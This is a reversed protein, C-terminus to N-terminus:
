QGLLTWQRFGLLNDSLGCDHPTERYLGDAEVSFGVGIAEPPTWYTSQDTRRDTALDSGKIPCYRKGRVGDEESHKKVTVPRTNGAAKPRVARATPHRAWREAGLLFSARREPPCRMARM